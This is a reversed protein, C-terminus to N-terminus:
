DSLYDSIADHLEYENLEIQSFEKSLNRKVNHKDPKRVGRTTQARQKRPKPAEVRASTTAHEGFNTYGYGFFGANEKSFFKTDRPWCYPEGSVCMSELDFAIICETKVVTYLSSNLFNRNETAPNLAPTALLGFHVQPQPTYGGVSGTKLDVYPLGEISQFYNHSVRNLYDTPSPEM